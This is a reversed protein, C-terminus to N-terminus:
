EASNFQLTFVVGAIEEAVAQSFELPMCEELAASAAAVFAKRQAEDGTVRIATPQPPGMLTGNARFAFKLTVFSNKIGVPPTWCRGLADNVEGLSRLPEALLRSPQLLFLVGAIACAALFHM